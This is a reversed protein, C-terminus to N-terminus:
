DKTIIFFNNQFDHALKKIDITNFGAAHLMEIATEEGWMAGLGAGNQALSVSMCHLCSITYLLPGVPHDINKHVYSSAAIDQMLFMGGPRLAKAINALVIDPRAQDHIADFATVLDFRHNDDISSVDRQEFCINTLGAKEAESQGRTIAEGSIDFGVFRSQPFTKAMLRLARGRGCGVDLVDIGKDLAEVLGPALPLIYDTLAAVVTQGSDEAMIKHFRKYADYPLGGGNKFCDIIQSEVEGLQSIYQAFVAINDPASERTLYAVHEKPLLFLPGNPDCEVIRGTVMAGLWERVYRENLGAEEAIQVSTAPQMKSMTDFLKTRHGISIMLALAGSNLIDLMRDAFADAKQTDIANNEMAVEKNMAWLM